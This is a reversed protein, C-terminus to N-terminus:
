VPQSPTDRPLNQFDCSIVFHSASSLITCIEMSLIRSPRGWNAAPVVRIVWHTIKIKTVSNGWHKHEYTKWFAEGRYWFHRFSNLNNCESVKLVDTGSSFIGANLNLVVTLSEQLAYSTLFSFFFAQTLTDGSGQIHLIVLGSLPANVFISSCCKVNSCLVARKSLLLYAWPQLRERWWYFIFICALMYFWVCADCLTISGDYCVFITKPM